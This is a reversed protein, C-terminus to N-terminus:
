KSRHRATEMIRIAENETEVENLKKIVDEGYGLSRAIDSYQKKLRKGYKM